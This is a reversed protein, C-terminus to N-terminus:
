FGFLVALLYATAETPLQQGEVIGEYSLLRVANEEELSRLGASM